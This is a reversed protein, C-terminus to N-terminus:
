VLKGLVVMDSLRMVAILVRDGKKPTYSALRTLFRMPAGSGLDVSVGEVSPDYDNLVVGVTMNVSMPSQAHISTGLFYVLPDDSEAV